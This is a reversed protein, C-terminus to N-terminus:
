DDRERFRKIVLPSFRKAVLKSVEDYRSKGFSCIACDFNHWHVLAVTSAWGEAIGWSQDYRLSNGLILGGGKLVGFSQKKGESNICQVGQIADSLLNYVPIVLCDSNKGILSGSFTCRGAGAAWSIEKAIAYPHDSVYDDDKNVRAWISRAFIMREKSDTAPATIFRTLKMPAGSDRFGGDTAMKYLLGLGYIPKAWRFNDRVWRANYNHASQAFEDAVAFGVNGLERKIVSFVKLCTVRDTSNIYPLYQRIQEWTSESPHERASLFKDM